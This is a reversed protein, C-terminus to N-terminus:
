TRGGATAISWRAAGVAVDEGGLQGLGVRASTMAEADAQLGQAANTADARSAPFRNM